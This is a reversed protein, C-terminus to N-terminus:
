EGKDQNNYRGQGTECLSRGKRLVGGLLRHAPRESGLPASLVQVQMKYLAEGVVEEEAARQKPTNQLINEGQRQPLTVGARSAIREPVGGKGIPSRSWVSPSPSAGSMEREKWTLRIRLVQRKRATARSTSSGTRTSFAPPPIRVGRGGLTYRTARALPNSGEDESSSRSSFLVQPSNFAGVETKFLRREVVSSCTCTINNPQSDTIPNRCLPGMM